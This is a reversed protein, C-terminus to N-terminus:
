EKRRVLNFALALVESSLFSLRFLIAIAAALPFPMYPSLLTALTIEQVGLGSPAFFSIYGLLWSAAYIGIFVPILSFPLDIIIRSLFFLILGGLLFQLFFSCALLPLFRVPVKISEVEGIKGTLKKLLKIISTSAKENSLLGLIVAFFLIGLIATAILLERNQVVGTPLRWFILTALIVLFGLLLTFLAEVAVATTAQIRSMGALGALYVRGAYQWISGPLFRGANSFTWIQFNKMYEIHSGLAKTVLHWSLANVAYVPVLFIILICFNLLNFRWSISSIVDWQKIVSGALFIFIAGVIFYPIIKKLLKM